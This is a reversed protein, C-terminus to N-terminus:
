SHNEQSEVIVGSRSTIQYTKGVEFPIKGLEEDFFFVKREDHDKWQTPIVSIGLESMQPEEQGLYTGTFPLGKERLLSAIAKKRKRNPSVFLLADGLAFPMLLLISIVGLWFCLAGKTYDFYAFLSLGVLIFALVMWGMVDFVLYIQGRKELSQYEALYDHSM